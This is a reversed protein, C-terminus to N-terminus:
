TSRKAFLSRASAMGTAIFLETCPFVEGTLVYSENLRESKLLGRGRRLMYADSPNRYARLTLELRGDPEFRIVWDKGSIPSSMDREGNNFNIIM